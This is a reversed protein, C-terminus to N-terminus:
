DWGSEEQNERKKEKQEVRNDPLNRTMKPPKLNEALTQDKNIHIMRCM